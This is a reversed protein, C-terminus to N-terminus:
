TKLETAGEVSGTTVQLVMLPQSDVEWQSLIAPSLMTLFVDRPDCDLHSSHLLTPLISLQRPKAGLPEEPPLHGLGTEGDSQYM